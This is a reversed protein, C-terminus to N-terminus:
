VNRGSCTIEWDRLDIKGTVAESILSQRAEKIKGILKKNKRIMGTLLEMKSDLFDICSEVEEESDPVALFLNSLRDATFHLITVRNCIYDIRGNSKLFFLWYYLFKTMSEKHSRVRHVANQIYFSEDINSFIAAKGADGGENVILDGNRVLYKKKRISQVM